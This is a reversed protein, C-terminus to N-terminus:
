VNESSELEPTPRRDQRSLVPRSPALHASIPRAKRSEAPHWWRRTPVRPPLPPPNETHGGTSRVVNMAAGIGGATLGGSGVTRTAVTSVVHQTIHREYDRVYVHGGNRVHASVHQPVRVKQTGTVWDTQFVNRIGEIIACISLIILGVSGGLLALRAYAHKLPSASVVWSHVAGIALFAVDLYSVSAEYQQGLNPGVYFIPRLIVFVSNGFLEGWSLPFLILSAFISLLALPFLTIISKVTMVVNYIVWLILLIGFLPFIATLGMLVLSVIVSGIIEHYLDESIIYYILYVFSALTMLGLFAAFNAWDQGGLRHRM